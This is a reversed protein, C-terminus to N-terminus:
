KKRKYYYKRKKPSLKEGKLERRVKKPKEKVGFETIDVRASTHTAHFTFLELGMEFPIGQYPLKEVKGGAEFFEEKAKDLYAQDPKFRRGHRKRPKIQFPKM